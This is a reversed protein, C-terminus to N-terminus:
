GKSEQLWGCALLCVVILGKVSMQNQVLHGTTTVVVKTGGVEISYWIYGRSPAVLSLVGMLVWQAAPMMSFKYSQGQGECFLRVCARVGGYFCEM